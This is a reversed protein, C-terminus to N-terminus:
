REVLLAEARGAWCPRELLRVAILPRGGHLEGVVVEPCPAWLIAQDFPIQDTDNCYHLPNHKCFAWSRPLISRPVGTAEQAGPVAGLVLHEHDSTM